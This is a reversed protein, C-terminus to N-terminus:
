EQLTELAALARTVFCDYQAAMRAKKDAETTWGAFHSLRLAGWLEWFPLSSYDLAPNRAKYAATYLDMAQAGLAWLAELRSKGLDALPDGLMADEWDIIATLKDARWLLNGLWFDGHLLVAGNSQLRPLGARLADRIGYTDAQTERLRKEIAAGQTPLFALDHQDLSLRHINSLIDALQDCFAPLDAAAFRTEGEVFDTILFPFACDADVLLPKPVALGASSLIKLLRFEDRAIDPNAQRDRASHGLLVLHLSRVKDALIDLKAARPSLQRAHILKWDSNVASLAKQAQPISFQM